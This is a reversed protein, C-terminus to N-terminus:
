LAEVQPAAKPPAVDERHDSKKREDIHVPAFDHANALDWDRSWAAPPAVLLQRPKLWEYLDAYTM